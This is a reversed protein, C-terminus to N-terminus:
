AYMDLLTVVRRFGGATREIWGSSIHTTHTLVHGALGGEGADAGEGFVISNRVAPTALWQM